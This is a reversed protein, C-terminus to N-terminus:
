QREGLRERERESDTFVGQLASCATLSAAAVTM